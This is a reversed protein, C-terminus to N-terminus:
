PTSYLQIIDTIGDRCVQCFEGGRDFMMCQLQTRYYGTAEYNAGEFAGVATRVPSRKFIKEELRLEERFLATM